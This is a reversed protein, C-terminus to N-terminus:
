TPKLLGVSDYYQLTRVSVNFLRALESIQM